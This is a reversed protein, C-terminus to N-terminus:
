KKRKPKKGKGGKKTTGKKAKGGKKTGKKAKAKKAKAKKAKAKKAKAKKAKGKKKTEKEKKAKGDKKKGKKAKMAKDEKKKKPKEKVAVPAADPETPESAPAPPEEYSPFIGMGQERYLRRWRLVSSVSLGVQQAVEATSHGADYLLLLRARRKIPANSGKAVLETIAEFHEPKILEPMNHVEMTPQPTRKSIPM